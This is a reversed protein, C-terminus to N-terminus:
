STPPVRCQELWRHLARVTAVALQPAADVAARVPWLSCLVATMRTERLVPLRMGQPDDLHLGLRDLHEARLEATLAAALTRGGLSEFSPVQYFHVTSRHEAEAGGAAEFGIYVHAAFRNAIRAQVVADPEDLAIVQARAQRLERSVARAIASYGGFHGVVARVADLAPPGGDPGGSVAVLSRLRERERITAVGPGSGTQSTVRALARVSDAGCVGDSTLGYDAQFAALAKSTTPGFIGDVRGCDFGLRALQTQLQAVDDGRLNPAALVLLRDGLEWNAEVLAKWSEEDCCGTPRLGRAEQFRRLADATAPCFTGM